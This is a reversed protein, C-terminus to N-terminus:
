GAHLLGQAKDNAGWFLSMTTTIIVTARLKPPCVWAVFPMYERDGKVMTVGRIGLSTILPQFYQLAFFRGHAHLVGFVFAEPRIDKSM